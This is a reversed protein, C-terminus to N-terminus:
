PLNELVTQSPIAIFLFAEQRCPQSRFRGIEINKGKLRGKNVCLIKFRWIEYIYMYDSGKTIM